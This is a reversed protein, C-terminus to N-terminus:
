PLRRKRMRVRDCLLCVEAAAVRGRFDIEIRTCIAAAFGDVRVWVRWFGAYWHCRRPLMPLWSRNVALRNALQSSFGSTAMYEAGKKTMDALWKQSPRDAAILGRLDIRLKRGRLSSDATQCCGTLEALDAEALQGLLQLRFADAGDHIYYRLSSRSVQKDNAIRVGIEDQPHEAQQM